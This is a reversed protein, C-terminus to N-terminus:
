FLSFTESIYVVLPQMISQAKILGKWLKLWAMEERSWAIKLRIVNMELMGTSNLM